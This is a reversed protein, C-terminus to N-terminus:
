NDPLDEGPWIGDYYRNLNEKAGQANYRKGPIHEPYLPRSALERNETVGLARILPSFTKTKCIVQFAPGDWTLATARGKKVLENEFPGLLHPHDQKLHDHVAAKVTAPSVGPHFEVENAKAAVYGVLAAAFSVMVSHWLYSPHVIERGIMLVYKTGYVKMLLRFWARAQNEKAEAAYVEPSSRDYSTDYRARDLATTFELICGVALVDLLGDQTHM